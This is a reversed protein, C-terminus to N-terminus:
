LNGHIGALLQILPEGFMVRALSVNMMTTALRDAKVSTSNSTTMEMMPTSTARNSGATCAARSAALRMCHVFLKRCIPRAACKGDAFTRRSVPHAVTDITRSWDQIAQCIVRPDDISRVFLM